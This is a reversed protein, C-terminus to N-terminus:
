GASGEMGASLRAYLARAEAAPLFPIRFAGDRSRAGATDLWLTAMGHRRDFPSETLRLTQLKRVDAFRWTRRLWGERVAILGDSVDAYAAHAAWLRARLVVVVLLVLASLGIPGFRWVAAAAAVIVFIGPGMVLRRWARPHLPRWAM